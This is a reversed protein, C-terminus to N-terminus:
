EVALLQEFHNSELQDVHIGELHLLEHVIVQANLGHFWRELIEGDETVYEVFISVPRRRIFVRGPFSLCGETMMDIGEGFAAIRPNYMTLVVGDETQGLTNVVIIRFLRGVQNAALGLGGHTRLLRHMFRTFVKMKNTVNKVSFCKKNLITDDEIRFKLPNYTAM